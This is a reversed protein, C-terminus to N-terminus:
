GEILMSPHNVDAFGKFFLELFITFKSYGDETHGLKEHCTIRVGIDGL